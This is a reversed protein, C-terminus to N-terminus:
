ENWKPKFTTIEECNEYRVWTDLISEDKSYEICYLEEILHASIVDYIEWDYKVKMGGYAKFEKM